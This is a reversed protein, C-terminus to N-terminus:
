SDAVDGAFPDARVGKSTAWTIGDEIDKEEGELDLLIWGRGESIDARHINTVLHFQQGLNYIVPERLLEEPFTLMVRRKVM